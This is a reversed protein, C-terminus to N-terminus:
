KVEVTSLNNEPKTEPEIQQKSERLWKVYMIIANALFIVWMLLVAISAGETSLAVVWMIISVINVLIWLIWQETYRKIMLIQAIVSLITSISDVIPLNGGMIKLIYGYGVVSLICIIVLWILQKITMRNKYVANTDPNIHKCWMVLGIINTPFYYLLNLMVDGYYKAKWAVYAYLIVNITGFIYNSIRGMGCLIVCIVGSVSAMIAIWNDGNYVSIGLIMLVAFLMWAIQWKEWGTFERKIAAKIDM